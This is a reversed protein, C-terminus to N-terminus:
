KSIVANIEKNGSAFDHYSIAELQNKDELSFITEGSLICVQPLFEVSSFESSRIISELFFHVLDLLGM